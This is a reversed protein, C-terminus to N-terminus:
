QIYYNDIWREAIYYISNEIIRRVDEYPKISDRRAKRVKLLLLETHDDSYLTKNQHNWQLFSVSYVSM